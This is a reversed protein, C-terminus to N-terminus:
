ADSPSVSSRLRKVRRRLLPLLENEAVRLAYDNCCFGVFAPSFFDPTYMQTHIRGMAIKLLSEEAGTELESWLERHHKRDYDISQRAIGLDNAIHALSEGAVWRYVIDKRLTKLKSM